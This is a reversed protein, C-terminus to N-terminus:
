IEAQWKTHTHTHTNCAEEAQPEALFDCKYWQMQCKGSKGQRGSGQSAGTCNRGGLLGSPLLNKFAALWASSWSEPVRKSDRGHARLQSASQPKGGCSGGDAKGGRKGWHQRNELWSLKNRQVRSNCQKWDVFRFWGAWFRICPFQGALGASLTLIKFSFKMEKAMENIFEGKPSPKATSVDFALGALPIGFRCNLKLRKQSVKRLTGEVNKTAMCNSLKRVQQDETSVKGATLGRFAAAWSM